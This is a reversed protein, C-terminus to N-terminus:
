QQMLDEQNVIIIDYVKDTNGPVAASIDVTGNESVTAAKFQQVYVEAGVRVIGDLKVTNTGGENTAPRIIMVKDLSSLSNLSAKLNRLLFMLYPM